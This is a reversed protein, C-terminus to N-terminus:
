LNYKDAKVDDLFARMEHDTFILPTGRDKSDRVATMTEIHAMEVCDGNYGSRISKRWVARSLDFM